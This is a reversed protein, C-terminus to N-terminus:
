EEEKIEEEKLVIAKIKQYMFSVVLLVVGLLIFAIIKGAPPINSIDYVFLKVLSIAFLALASVRLPKYNHLIGFRIIVFSIM